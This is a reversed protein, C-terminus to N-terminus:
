REPMRILRRTSVIQKALRRKHANAATSNTHMRPASLQSADELFYATNEISGVCANCAAPMMCHNTYVPAQLWCVKRYLVTLLWSALM